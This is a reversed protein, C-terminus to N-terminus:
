YIEKVLDYIDISLYCYNQVRINNRLKFEKVKDNLNLFDDDYKIALYKVRKKKIIYERLYYLIDDNGNQMILLKKIFINQSNELFIKFDNPRIHLILHLYELKSPLIQGLNQLLLSSFEYYGILLSQYCESIKLYNLNQKINKILNIVLRTIQKGISQLNLRKINKCYKIILELLQQNLLLVLSFRCMLNELYDGSIQLLKQLPEIQPIRDIFLTKLKFPKTLNNIQQVFQSNLSFCHIIHVSELVNLQELIKDLNIVNNFNIRYFIITNLTNSCNFGKSLLLSKFLPLNNDGFIIKKLNQHLNIIQLIRDEILTHDNNYYYFDFDNKNDIYLKLNGTNHIFNTNQLISELINIFYIYYYYNSIEIELTNLNVENEIFKKFLSIIVLRKIDCILDINLRQKSTIIINEVWSNAFTAMNFTNLYKLFSPYNFLASSTLSNDRIGYQDLKTKLDDNLDYLYIKILNSNKKYNKSPILFPNEWLLPITIRCWLRNVLVCSYLTSFDNKFYKIVEYTLEPLDVISIKPHAM